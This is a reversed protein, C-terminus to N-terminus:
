EQQSCPNLAESKDMNSDLERQGFSYLKAPNVLVMPQCLFPLQPIRIRYYSPNLM